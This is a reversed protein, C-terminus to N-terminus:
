DLTINNKKIIPAWRELDANVTARFEAPTDGVPEMYQAQLKQKIEASNVIGIIEKALRKVIATPTKAPIVFGMWADGQVNKLGAESLTPVGPMVPSRRATAVALARLKGARIHPMVAAAPLIAMQTQGSLLATVAQASSPYPVHVIETGSSAALAEMALHSISGVGMSSFNYKGQNSRLRALLSPMDTIGSQASVVLISPQTAAITIYALDRQPDYPLNKFLL